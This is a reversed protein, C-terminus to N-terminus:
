GVSAVQVASIVHDNYTGNTSTSHCRAEANGAAALTATGALVVYARDGPATASLTLVNEAPDIVAGGVLLECKVNATGANNNALLKASLSFSGAPLALTAVTVAEEPTGPFEVTTSPASAFAASPPREGPAGNHGPAGEKGAAGTTGARGKLKKLVKPNIQSTSNLLYHKAALAGGSMAFVLALTAVVNAYTLRKRM